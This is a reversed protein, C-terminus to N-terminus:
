DGQTAMALPKEGGTLGLRSVRELFEKAAPSTMRFRWEVGQGRQDVVPTEVFLNPGVSQLQLAQDPSTRLFNAISVAQAATTGRLLFRASVPKGPVLDVALGLLDCRERDLLATSLIPDTLGRLREPRATLVRLASDEDLRAFENLFEADVRMDPRVGLRVHILQAVAERGGLALTKPGIRALAPGEDKGNWRIYRNLGDVIDVTYASGSRTLTRLLADVDGARRMEVLLYDREDGPVMARTVREVETDLHIEPVESVKRVLGAWLQQWVDPEEQQLAKTLDGASFRRVNLSVVAETNEPLYERVAPARFVLLLSLTLVICCSIWVFHFIRLDQRNAAESEQRWSTEMEELSRVAQRQRVVEEYLKEAEASDPQADHDALVAGAQHYPEEKAEEIRDAQRRITAIERNLAAVAATVNKEKSVLGAQVEAARKNFEALRARVERLAAALETLPAAIADRGIKQRAVKEPLAARLLNIERRRMERGRVNDPAEADGVGASVQLQAHERLLTLQEADLEATQRDHDRLAASQESIRAQAEKEQQLVPRREEEIKALAAQAQARVGEREAEQAKVKEGLAAVQTANEALEGDLLRLTAVAGHAAPDDMAELRRWCTRGLAIEARELAGHAHALALRNKQRRLRRSVAKIGTHFFNM